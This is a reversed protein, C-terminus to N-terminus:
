GGMEGTDRWDSNGWEDTFRKYQVQVPQDILKVIMEAKEENSYFSKGDDKFGLELIDLIKEKM